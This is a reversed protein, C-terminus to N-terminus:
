GLGMARVWFPVARGEPRAETPKQYEHALSRAFSGAGNLFGLAIFPLFDALPQLRIPLSPEIAEGLVELVSGWGVVKVGTKFHSQPVRQRPVQEETM